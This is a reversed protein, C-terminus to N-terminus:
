DVAQFTRSYKLLKDDLSQLKFCIKPFVSLIHLNAFSLLKTILTRIYWHRLRSSKHCVTLCGHSLLLPSMTLFKSILTSKNWVIFNHWHFCRIIALVQVQFALHSSYSINSTLSVQIPTHNNAHHYRLTDKKWSVDLTQRPFNLHTIYHTIWHIWRLLRILSSQIIPRQTAIHSSSSAPKHPSCCARLWLTAFATYLLLWLTVLAM